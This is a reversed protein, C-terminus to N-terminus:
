TPSQDPSKKAATSFYYVGAAVLAWLLWNTPSSVNVPVTGIFRPAGDTGQVVDDLGSILLGNARESNVLAPWTNADYVIGTDPNYYEGTDDNYAVLTSLM